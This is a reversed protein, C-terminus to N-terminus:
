QKKSDISKTLKSYKITIFAGIAALIQLAISSFVLTLAIVTLASFSKSKGRTHMMAVAFRYGVYAFVFMFILYLNVTSVALVSTTDMSFMSFLLLAFYFYAFTASPIFQWATIEKASESCVHILKCFFKHTIGVVAFALVTVIGVISNLYAGFVEDLYERSLNNKNAVSTAAAELVSSIVSEKFGNYIGVFYEYAESISTAETTSIIYVVASAFVAVALLLTGFLASEAKKMKKLYFLSIIIAILVSSLSTFTFYDRFGLVFEGIILLISVTVSAIKRKEICILAGLFASILPIMILGEIRYSIGTAGFFLSLAVLLAVTFRYNFKYKLEISM